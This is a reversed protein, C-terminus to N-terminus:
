NERKEGKEGRDGKEGKERSAAGAEARTAGRAKAEAGPEPGCEDIEVQRCARESSIVSVSWLNTMHLPAHPLQRQRPIM